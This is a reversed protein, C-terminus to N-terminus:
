PTPPSLFLEGIGTLTIDFTIAEQNPQGESQSSNYVLGERYYFTSAANTIRAFFQQGSKWCQDVEWGFKNDDTEKWTQAVEIRNNGTGFEPNNKLRKKL